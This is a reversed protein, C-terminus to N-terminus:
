QGREWDQQHVIPYMELNFLNYDALEFRSLGYALASAAEIYDVDGPKIPDGKDLLDHRITGDDEVYLKLRENAAWGGALANAQGLLYFFHHPPWSFLPTRYIDMNYGLADLEWKRWPKFEALNSLALGQAGFDIDEGLDGTGGVMANADQWEHMFAVLLRHQRELLPYLDPVHDPNAEKLVHEIGWILWMRDRMSIEKETFIENPGERYRFDDLFDEFGMNYVRDNGEYEALKDLIMKVAHRTATPTINNKSTALMPAILSTEEITLEPIKWNENDPDILEANLAASFLSIGNDLLDGPSEHSKVYAQAYLHQPYAAVLQRIDTTNDDSPATTYIAREWDEVDGTKNNLRAAATLYLMALEEGYEYKKGDLQGALSNLLIDVTDRDDVNSKDEAVLNSTATKGPEPFKWDNEFIEDIANGTSAPTEFGMIEGITPALDLESHQADSIFGEKIGPGILLMFSHRCWECFCGHQPFGGREPVHRGHDTTVIFYTKGRYRLEDQLTQWMEWVHFDAWRIADVYYHWEAEHGCEDVDGLNVFVMNPHVDPIKAKFYETVEIDRLSDILLIDEDPYRGSSSQNISHILDKGLYMGTKEPGFERADALLDDIEALTSGTPRFIGSPIRTIEAIKSEVYDSRADRFEEMFTPFVPHIHGDNPVPSIRGTMMATHSSTTATPSEIWNNTLLSGMPVLDNWIHPIFKHNPDGIGEPWRLGDIVIVVVSIQDYPNNQLLQVAGDSVQKKYGDQWNQNAFWWASTIIAVILILFITIAIKKRNRTKM